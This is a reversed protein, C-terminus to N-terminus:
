FVSHLATIEEFLDQIISIRLVITLGLTTVPVCGCVKQDGHDLSKVLLQLSAEILYFVLSVQFM